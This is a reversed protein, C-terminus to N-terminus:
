IIIAKEIIKMMVSKSMGISIKLSIIYKGLLFMESHQNEFSLADSIIEFISKILSEITGNLKILMKVINIIFNM